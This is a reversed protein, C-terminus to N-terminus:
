IYIKNHGHLQYRSIPTENYLDYINLKKYLTYFIYIILTIIIMLTSQYEEKNINYFGGSKTSYNKDDDVDDMSFSIVEEVHEVNPISVAKIFQEIDSVDEDKIYIFYMSAGYKAKEIIQDIEVTNNERDHHDEILNQKITGFIDKKDLGYGTTDYVTYLPSGENSLPKNKDSPLKEKQDETFLFDNDSLSRVKDSLSEEKQDPFVYDMAFICDKINFWHGSRSDSKRKASFVVPYKHVLKCLNSNNSKLLVPDAEYLNIYKIEFTKKFTTEIFNTPNVQIEQYSDKRGYMHSVIFQAYKEGREKSIYRKKLEDSLNNILYDVMFKRYKEKSAIAQIPALAGCTKEFVNQRVNAKTDIDIQESFSKPSSSSEFLSYLSNLSSLM